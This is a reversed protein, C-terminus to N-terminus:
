SFSGTKKKSLTLISEPWLLNRRKPYGSSIGLIHPSCEHRSSFWPVWHGAGPLRPGLNQVESVLGRTSTEHVRYPHWQCQLYKFLAQTKISKHNQINREWWTGGVQPQFLNELLLPFIYPLCLSFSSFWLTRGLVPAQKWVNRNREQGAEQTSHRMGMTLTFVESTYARIWLIHARPVCSGVTRGKKLSLIM